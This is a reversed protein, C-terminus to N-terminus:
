YASASSLNAAIAPPASCAEGFFNFIEAIYKRSSFACLARAARKHLFRVSGCHEKIFVPRAPLCLPVQYRCVRARWKRLPQRKSGHACLFAGYQVFASCIRARPLTIGHQIRRPPTEALLAEALGAPLTKDHTRERTRMSVSHVRWM